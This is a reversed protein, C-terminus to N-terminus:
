KWVQWWKKETPPKPEWWDGRRNCYGNLPIAGFRQVEVFRCNLKEKGTVPNITKNKPSHCEAFEKGIWSKKYHKCDVCLKDM